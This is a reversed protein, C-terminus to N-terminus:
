GNTSRGSAQLVLPPVADSDRTYTVTFGAVRLVTSVVSSLAASWPTGPMGLDALLVTADRAGPNVTLGGPAALMGYRGPTNRGLM